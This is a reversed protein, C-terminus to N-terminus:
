YGLRIIYYIRFLRFVNMIVCYWLVRARWFCRGVRIHSLELRPGSGHFGFWIRTGAWCCRKVRFRTVLFGSGRWQVPEEDRKKVKWIWDKSSLWPPALRSELDEILAEVLLKRTTVGEIPPAATGEAESRVVKLEDGAWAERLEAKTKLRRNWIQIQVLVCSPVVRSVLRLLKTGVGMGCRYPWVSPQYLEVLM